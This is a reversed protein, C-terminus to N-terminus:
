EDDGDDVAGLRLAVIAATSRQVPLGGLLRGLTQRSVGLAETAEREGRENVIRALHEREARGLAQGRHHTNEGM